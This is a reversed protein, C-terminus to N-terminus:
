ALELSRLRLLLNVRFVPLILPVVEHAEGLLVEALVLLQGSRLIFRDQRNVLLILAFHLTLTQLVYQSLYIHVVASLYVGCVHLV